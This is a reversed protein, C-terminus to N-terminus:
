GIRGRACGHLNRYVKLYIGKRKRREISRKVIKSM